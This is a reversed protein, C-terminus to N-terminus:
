LTSFHSFHFHLFSLKLIQSFNLILITSTIRIVENIEHIIHMPIQLMSLAGLETMGLPRNDIQFQRLKLLCDMRTAFEASSLQGRKKLLEVRQDINEHCLIVWRYGPVGTRTMMGLNCPEKNRAM